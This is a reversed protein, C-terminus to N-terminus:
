KSEKMFNFLARRVFDARSTYTPDNKVFEDILEVLKKTLTIGKYKNPDAMRKLETGKGM